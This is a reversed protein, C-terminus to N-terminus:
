LFSEWSEFRSSDLGADAEMGAADQQFVTQFSFCSCPQHVVVQQRAVVLYAFQQVLFLFFLLAFHKLVWM